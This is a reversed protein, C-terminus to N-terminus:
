GFLLIEYYFFQSPIPQNQVSQPKAHLVSSRYTGGAPLAAQQALRPKRNAFVAVAFSSGTDINPSRAYAFAV